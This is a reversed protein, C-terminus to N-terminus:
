EAALVDPVDSVHNGGSAPDRNLNVIIPGVLDRNIVVVVQHAVQLLAGSRSIVRDTVDPPLTALRDDNSLVFEAIGKISRIPSVVQESQHLAASAVFDVVESDTPAPLLRPEM